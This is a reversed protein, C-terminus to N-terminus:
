RAGEVLAFALLEDRRRGPLWRLKKPQFQPVRAVAVIRDGSVQVCTVDVLEGRWSVSRDFPDRHRAALSGDV